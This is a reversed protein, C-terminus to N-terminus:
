AEPHIPLQEDISVVPEVAILREKGSLRILRVGQANRGVLPVDSIRMRILKGSMTILVVEDDESGLIAGTVRGNRQSVRISIVGKGGRKQSRFRGLATCKGFGNNTAVLVRKGEQHGADITLLSVVRAKEGLRVGRVGQSQRGIARLESAQFRIAKGADSFLMVYHRSDVIETGILEDGPKLRIAIIGNKRPRSFSSLEIKKVTGKATAMIVHRGQDYDKVPLVSSIREGDALPLMNVIPKGQAIRSAKPLYYVKLWYVKGHTSFCLLTDHTGAIFLKEVFDEEKVSTAAKGKGGRRQARYTDLPQYKAYGRHSLTVVVDEKKILDELEVGGEEDLIETRRDDGHLNRIEILEDKVVGVLRDPNSLIELLGGIQEVLTKYDIFVKDQELATLRHLRLDLIAQAQAPSLRYGDDLLGFEPELTDPRTIYGATDDSGSKAGQLMEIVKGPLWVRDMLARKAEAPSSSAKILEIVADLSALAVAYGELLHAKGRAKRLEFVSRRTIVDRRHRVFAELTQKINVLLPGGEVLAVMNVSFATQLSTFKYLKNLIVEGAEGRKIEMVVRMGDKDSEDRLEAIGGIRKEKVLGAIKQLLMAKNVMYPLENVVIRESSGKEDKEIVCRARMVVRGRGTHYAEKIGQRGCIFGATPFDPGPVHEMLGEVSIDPDDILALVAGIVEGLNHPPINTAMGVAIGSSGNVLLNPVRTPFVLPEKESGDYNAVFDVTEKDLDAMLQHAIRMMRVETYRMAAPADGDVSGFNGQGDILMYRLSFPQAMRVIADYVASEGHPHYKGIVEGVVRASKKHPKNYDIGLERMAFLVRRHVPKLGDRIDPLARGVIVSMAYDLYSKRMEDELTVVIIERAFDTM